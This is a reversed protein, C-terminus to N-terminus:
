SMIVVVANSHDGLLVRGDLCCRISVISVTNTKKGYKFKSQPKLCYTSLLEEKSFIAITDKLAILVEGNPRVAIKYVHTFYADDPNAWPWPWQHPAPMWSRLCQIHVSDFIQVLSGRGGIVFLQSSDTSLALGTPEPVSLFTILHMEGTQMRVQVCNKWFDTAFLYGPTQDVTLDHITLQGMRSPFPQLAEEVPYKVRRFAGDQLIFADHPEGIYKTQRRVGEVQYQYVMVHGRHFLVFLEKSASNYAIRQM